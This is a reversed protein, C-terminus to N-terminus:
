RHLQDFISGMPPLDRFQFLNQTLQATCPLDSIYPVEMCWYLLRGVGLKHPVGKFETELISLNIIRYIM